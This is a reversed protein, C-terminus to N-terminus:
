FCEPGELAFKAHVGQLRNGKHWSHSNCFPALLSPEKIHFYRNEFNWFSLCIMGIDKSLGIPLQCNITLKPYLLLIFVTLILFSLLYHPKLRIQCLSSRCHGLCLGTYVNSETTKAHKGAFHEPTFLFHLNHRPVSPFRPHIPPHNPPRWRTHVVALHHPIGWLKCIRGPIRMQKLIWMLLKWHNFRNALRM